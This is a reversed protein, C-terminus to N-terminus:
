PGETQVRVLSVADPRYDDIVFDVREHEPDPTGAASDITRSATYGNASAATRVWATPTMAYDGDIVEVGDWDNQEGVFVEGGFEAATAGIGRGFLSVTDGPNAVRPRAFWLHPSPQLSNVDGEYIYASVDSLLALAMGVNEYIFGSVDATPVTTFGVNEYIYGSVDQSATV